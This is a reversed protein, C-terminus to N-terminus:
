DNARVEAIEERVRTEWYPEDKFWLNILRDIEVERSDPHLREVDNLLDDFFSSRERDMYTESHKGRWQFSLYRCIAWVQKRINNSM